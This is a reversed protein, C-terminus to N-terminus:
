SGRGSSTLPNGRAGFRAPDAWADSEFRRVVGCRAPNGKEYGM